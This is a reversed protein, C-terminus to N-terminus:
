RPILMNNLLKKLHEGLNADLNEYEKGNLRILLIGNSRAYNTKISDRRKADLFAIEAEQTTSYFSYLPRHHHEGDYEVLIKVTGRDWIGFDYSLPYGKDGKLDSFKQQHVFNYGREKLWLLIAYEGYSVQKMCLYCRTSGTMVDRYNRTFLKGCSCRLEFISTEYTKYEGSVWEVGANKLNERVKDLPNRMFETLKKTQCKQCTKSGNLVNAPSVSWTCSCEPCIHKIKVEYGAYDEINVVLIGREKKRQLYEANTLKNQESIEKLRGLRISEGCINCQRKPTRAKRIFNDWSAQFIEGCECVLKLMRIKRRNVQKMYSEIFKCESVSEVIQTLEADSYAKRGM